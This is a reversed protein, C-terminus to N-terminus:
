EKGVLVLARDGIVEPEQSRQYMMFSYDNVSEVDNLAEALGGVTVEHGAEVADKIHKLFFYTFLGHQKEPYWSSIQNGRSSTFVAANDLKLVPQKVRLGIASAKPIISGKSSMGSFCADFAMTISKVEKDAGMKYLNSYLLDLSYSTLKIAGPDAEAPLLSVDGTDPDPAGHGSYYIFIDAKGKRARSYLIGRHDNQNGFTKFLDPLTANEMYIINQEKFGMTEILYQKMVSADRIAYDVQPIGPNRYEKNGIVVAVAYPRVLGTRPPIDVNASQQAEALTAQFYSNAPDLSVAKRALELARQRQPDQKDTLLLHALGNLAKAYDPKLQVARELHNGARDVRGEAYYLMAQNYHLAASEPCLAIAQDYSRIAEAPSTRSEQMAQRAFVQAERCDAALVTAVPVTCLIGGVLALIFTFFSSKM